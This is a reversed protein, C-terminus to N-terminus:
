RTIVQNLLVGNGLLYYGRGGAAAQGAELDAVGLRSVLDPHSLMWPEKGPPCAPHPPSTRLTVQMRSHAHM